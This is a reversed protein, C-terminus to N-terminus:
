FLPVTFVAAIGGAIAAGLLLTEVMYRTGLWLQRM